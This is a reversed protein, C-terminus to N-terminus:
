EATQIRAAAAQLAQVNQKLREALTRGDGDARDCLDVAAVPIGRDQVIRNVQDALPLRALIIHPDQEDIAQLLKAQASETLSESEPLHVYHLNWGLRRVLYQYVPADGLVTIDTKQTDAALQELLRNVDTLEATLEDCGHRIEAAADPLIDLLVDRTREAQSIALEPDLWTAWVVGAHSHRGEPGHQHVVADPVRIFESYYGSATDVLRSRPLTVQQLWPEHDGGSILIRTAEQMTRIADQGPTWTPSSAAPPVVLVIDAASGAMRQAMELLPVSTVAVTVREPAAAVPAPEKQCGIVPLLGATVLCAARRLMPVSM